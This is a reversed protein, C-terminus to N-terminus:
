EMLCMSKQPNKISFSCSQLHGLFGFSIAFLTRFISRKLFKPAEPPAARRPPQIKIKVSDCSKAAGKRIRLRNGLLGCQLSTAAWCPDLVNLKANRVYYSNGAAKGAAGASVSLVAIITLLSAAAPAAVNPWVLRHWAHRPPRRQGRPVRPMSARAYAVCLSGGSWALPQAM